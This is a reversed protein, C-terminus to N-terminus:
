LWCARPSCAWVVVLPVMGKLLSSPDVPFGQKGGYMVGGLPVLPCVMFPKGGSCGVRSVKLLIFFFYFFDKLVFILFLIVSSACPSLPNYM